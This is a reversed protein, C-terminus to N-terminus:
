YVISGGGAEAQKRAAKGEKRKREKERTKGAGLGGHAPRGAFPLYKLAEIKKWSEGHFIRIVDRVVTDVVGGLAPAATKVATMTIGGVYGDREINRLVDYIQFKSAGMATAMAAWASGVPDFERGNIFNNFNNIGYTVGGFYFYLKTMNVVADRMDKKGEERTAPNRAKRFGGVAKALVARRLHNVYTMQFTKLTYCLRGFGGAHIYGASMNSMTVPQIKGLEMLVATKLNWNNWDKKVVARALDDLDAGFAEGFRARIEPSIETVIAQGDSRVYGKIGKRINYLTANLKTTKLMDDFARFGTFTLIEQAAKESAGVFGTSRGADFTEMGLAGIGFEERLYIINEPRAKDYKGNTLWRMADDFNKEGSEGFMKLATRLTETQAILGMDGGQTMTSSFQGLTLAHTVARGVKAWEPMPQRGGAFRSHFLHMVMDEQEAQTKGLRKLQGKQEALKALRRGEGKALLKFDGIRYRSFLTDESLTRTTGDKYKIVTGEPLTKSPYKLSALIGGISTDLEREVGSPLARGKAMETPSAKGGFLKLKETEHVLDEIYQGWARSAREYLHFTGEKIRDMKRQKANSPPRTARSTAGLDNVARNTIAAYLQKDRRNKLFHGSRDLKRGIDQQFAIVAEEAVSKEKIGLAKNFEKLKDRKVARPFYYDIKGLEGGVARFGAEVEDIARLQANFQDTFEQTSLLTTRESAMLKEGMKTVKERMIPDRGIDILTDDMGQWEAKTIIGKDLADDLTAFYAGYKNKLIVPLSASVTEHRMLRTGLRPHIKWLASMMQEGIYDVASQKAGGTKIGLSYGRVRAFQPNFLLFGYMWADWYDYGMDEGAMGTAIGFGARRALEGAFQPFGYLERSAINAFMDQTWPDVRLGGPIPTTKAEPTTILKPPRKQRAAQEVEEAVAKVLAIRENRAALTERYKMIISVNGKVAKDIAAQPLKSYDSPLGRLPLKALEKRLAAMHGKSELDDIIPAIGQLGDTVVDDVARLSNEIVSMRENVRALNAVEDEVIQQLRIPERSVQGGAALTRQLGAAERRSGGIIKDLQRMHAASTGTAKSIRDLEQAQSFLKFGRERYGHTILKRADERLKIARGRLFEQQIAHDHIVEKLIEDQTRVGREPLALVGEGELRPQERTAGRSKEWARGVVREYAALDDPSMSLLKLETTLKELEKVEKLDGLSRVNKPLPKGGSAYSHVKKTLEDIRANLIKAEESVKAVPVGKPRELSFWGAPPNKPDILALENKSGRPLKNELYGVVEHRKMGKLHRAYDFPLNFLTGIAIAEVISLVKNPKGENFIHSIISYGESNYVSSVGTEVASLALLSKAKQKMGQGFVKTLGYKMLQKYASGYVGFTGAVLGVTKATGFDEGELHYLTRATDRIVQEEDSVPVPLAERFAEIFSMWAPSTLDHTLRGMPHEPTPVGAKIAMARRLASARSAIEKFYESNKYDPQRDAYIEALAIFDKDDFMGFTMDKNLLAQYALETGHSYLPAMRPPDGVTRPPIAGAVTQSGPITSLTGPTVMYEDLLSGHKERTKEFIRKNIRNRDEISDHYARKLEPSGGLVASRLLERRATLLTNYADSGTKGSSAERYQSLIERPPRFLPLAEEVVVRRPETARERGRRETEEVMRAEMRRANAEMAATPSELPEEEVPERQPQEEFAEALSGVERKPFITAEVGVVSRAHAAQTAEEVEELSTAQGQTVLNGAINRLNQATSEYEEDSLPNDLDTYLALLASKSEEDFADFLLPQEEEEKLRPDGLAYTEPM